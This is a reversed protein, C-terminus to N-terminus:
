FIVTAPAIAKPVYLMPLCNLLGILDIGSPQTTWEKWFYYGQRMVAPMGPNEVVMEGGNYIQVWESNPETCFFVMNDPVMKVITASAPATSYSPDIDSGLVLVHNTIHWKITPLGRLICVYEGTEGGEINKEPVRDFEAFPTNASGATVRIDNNTILNYWLLGNLWADTVSYGSLQAYAADVGMLMQIIPAAVNAWTQTIINGTGLMNLQNKNGSPIQFNVQFGIAPAVVPAIQPWYRDGIINFWLSDQMMASALLEVGNNFRRALHTTQRKVYDQGGQDIQSNPGMIPSLNGLEEMLLPIKMHFRACAVRVDGTPNPAVSTPGTGPAKAIPVTRAFDFLRWTAFRTSGTVINPGSLQVTEDVYRDPQFGLWRSLRNQTPRIRSIVRLIVQPQLLEHLSVAM